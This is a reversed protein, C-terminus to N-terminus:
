PLIIKWHFVNRINTISDTFNTVATRYFFIIQIYFFHTSSLRSLSFCHKSDQATWLSCLTGAMIGKAISISTSNLRCLIFTITGFQWSISTKSKNPTIVRLISRIFIEPVCNNVALLLNMFNWNCLLFTFILDHLSHLFSMFLLLFPILTGTCLM